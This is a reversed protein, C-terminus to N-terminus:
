DIDLTSAVTMTKVTRATVETTSDLQSLHKLVEAMGPAHAEMFERVDEAWAQYSNIEGKFVDPKMDKVSVVTHIRGAGGGGGGSGPAISRVELLLKDFETRVTSFETATRGHLEQLSAHQKQQEGLTGELRACQETMLKEHSQFRDELHGSFKAMNNQWEEKVKEFEERSVM